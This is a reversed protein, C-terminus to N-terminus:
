MEDQNDRDFYNMLMSRFVAAPAEGSEVDRWSRKRNGHRGGDRAKWRQRGRGEERPTERDARM